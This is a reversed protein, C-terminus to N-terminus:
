KVPKRTAFITLCILGAIVMYICINQSVTGGKYVTWWATEFPNDGRLTEIFFRTVGYLMLMLSM